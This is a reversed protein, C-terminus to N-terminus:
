AKNKQQLSNTNTRSSLYAAMEGKDLEAGIGPADAVFNCGDVTKFTLIQKELHLRNFFQVQPEAV